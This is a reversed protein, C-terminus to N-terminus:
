GAQRHGARDDPSHADRGEEENLVKDRPAADAEPVGLEAGEDAGDGARAGRAGVEAGDVRHDRADEDTACGGQHQEHSADAAELVRYGITREETRACREDQVETRSGCSVLPETLYSMDAGNIGPSREM